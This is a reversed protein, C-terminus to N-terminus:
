KNTQLEDKFYKSQNFQKTYVVMSRSRNPYQKVSRQAENLTLGRELVEHRGSKFIKVVKYPGIYEM